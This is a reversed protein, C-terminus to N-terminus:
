PLLKRLDLPRYHSLVEKQPTKADGQPEKQSMSTTPEANGFTPENPKIADSVTEEGEPAPTNPTGPSAAQGAPGREPPGKAEPGSQPAAATSAASLAAADSSLAPPDNSALQLVQGRLQQYAMRMAASAQQETLVQDQAASAASISEQVQQQIQAQQEDHMAQQEQLAAAEEQAAQQGARAEELKGRLFEAHSMEAAQDGQQQADLFAQVAPPIRPEIGQAAGPAGMQTPGPEEPPQQAMQQPKGGDTTLGMADLALKFASAMKGEAMPDLKNFRHVDIAHGAASGVGKGISRGALGGGIAGLAGLGIMAPARYASPMGGEALLEGAAMGAGLGSAAGLPTGTMSGLGGLWREGRTLRDKEHAAAFNARARSTGAEDPERAAMKTANQGMATPPLPAPTAPSMNQGKGTPPLPAQPMMGMNAKKLTGPLPVGGVVASASKLLEERAGEPLEAIAAEFAAADVAVKDKGRIRLFYEAADAHPIGNLLHAEFDM